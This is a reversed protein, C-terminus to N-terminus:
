SSWTTWWASGSMYKKIVGITKDAAGQKAYLQALLTAGRMAVPTKLEAGVLKELTAIAQDIKGAEQSTTAAFFLAQDRYRSDKELAGFQASAEAYNKSLLNSQALGYAADGAHPGNPFKAQYNKFAAIAKKYDAANFYASGLTFFAPELQPSFEAKTLLADLDAAAKAYDGAQFKATAQAYLQALDAGAAAPPPNQQASAAVTLALLAVIIRGGVLVRRSFYPPM